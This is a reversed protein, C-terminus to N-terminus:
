FTKVILQKKYNLFYSRLESVSTLTFSYAFSLNPKSSRSSSSQPWIIFLSMLVVSLVQGQLLDGVHVDLVREGQAVPDPLHLIPQQGQLTDGVHVILCM